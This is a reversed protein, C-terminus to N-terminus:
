WRANVIERKSVDYNVHRKVSEERGEERVSTTFFSTFLPTFFATFFSTLSRSISPPRSCWRQQRQTLIFVVVAAPM